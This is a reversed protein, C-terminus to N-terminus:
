IKDGLGSLGFFSGPSLRVLSRFNFFTRPQALLHSRHDPTNFPPQSPTWFSPFASRSSSFASNLILHLFFCNFLDITSCNPIWGIFSANKFRDNLKLLTL